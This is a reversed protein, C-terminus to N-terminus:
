VGGTPYIMPITNVTTNCTHHQHTRTRTHHALIAYQLCVTGKVMTDHNFNKMTDLVYKDYVLYKNSNGFNNNNNIEHPLHGVM